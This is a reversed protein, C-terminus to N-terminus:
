TLTAAPCSISWPWCHRRGRLPRRDRPAAGPAPRRRRDGGRGRRGASARDRRRRRRRVAGRRLRLSRCSRRPPVGGGLRAALRRPRLRDAGRRHRRRGARRAVGRARQRDRLLPRRPGPEPRPALAVHAAIRRHRRGRLRARDPRQCGGLARYGGLAALTAAALLPAGFITVLQEVGQGPDLAAGLLLVLPLYVVSLGAVRVGAPALRGRTLAAFLSLLVLWVLLAFGIVPGRREPIATM